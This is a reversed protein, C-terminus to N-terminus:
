IQDEADAGLVLLDIAADVPTTEALDSFALVQVSGLAPVCRVHVSATVALAVVMPVRKYADEFSITWDGVGNDVLTVDHTGESIAATGTGVLKLALARMKRQPVSIVRSLM